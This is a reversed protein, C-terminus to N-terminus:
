VGRECGREFDPLGSCAGCRVCGAKSQKWSLHSQQLLTSVQQYIEIMLDPDPPSQAELPTGPIPRLPVIFPYVGLECLLRAGELISTKSEGLGAVIFSSVQNKGFLAVAEKWTDIFCGMSIAAKCPAAEELVARDFSEIHIGVTDAGSKKLLVLLGPDKPPMLQVHIPLSTKSKIASCCSALYNLEESSDAQTGTTLTIHEISDLRAAAQAVELLELPSKTHVTSRSELSLQIGCFVCRRPSYWYICEQFVTSALCNNGHLLAISSYPIGQDTNFDYYHPTDPIIVKQLPTVDEFLYSEGDRCHLSYPSQAIFSGRTPITLPREQVIITIGEAPGAGGKRGALPEEIKVGRSQLYVSLNDKRDGHNSSM